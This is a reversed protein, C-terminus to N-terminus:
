CLEELRWLADKLKEIVQELGYEREDAPVLKELREIVMAIERAEMALAFQSTTWDNAMNKNYWM